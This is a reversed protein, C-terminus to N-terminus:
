AVCIECSTGANMVQTSKSGDRYVTIGKLKMKWAQLYIKAIDDRTANHPLNITKSVANDTFEQFAAQHRLHWEPAIFPATRFLNKLEEPLNTNELHGEDLMKKHEDASLLKKEELIKKVVENEELLIKGGLVNERRLMLAYLPEISPSTGAIVAITGTPAVATRTANRVPSNPAYISDTWGAFVGREKALAASAEFSNESIFKMVERGLSVANESAYPIGLKILMEAWGMVGLGIKRNRKVVDAIQPLIYDNAEVVNDLFRVATFITERLADFEIKGDNVFLSLNISGLNCAEYPLLPVEGCPNTCNIVGQKPTPNALELDDLFVLGPDGTSWACDIILNWLERASIERAVEKTNPHILKWPLNKEVAELFANSAGVSINFNRLAGQNKKSTIFTEIDPHDCNLIGMNAGRRKGGQKIRETSADYLELFSIPGSASGGSEPLYDGNPRIKSFNFGTGGGSQHILAAYKLTDYIGDLSDEVPLVFCASLQQRQTGANMLTPSNPLFRLNNLLRYFKEATDAFNGKFKKEPEAIANAVRHFLEDPTEALNGDKGRLLYRSELVTIANATLNM